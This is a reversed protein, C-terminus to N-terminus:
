SCKNTRKHKLTLTQSNFILLAKLRTSCDHCTHGTLIFFFSHFSFFLLECGPQKLVNSEINWSLRRKCRGCCLYFSKNSCQVTMISQPWLNLAKMELNNDTQGWIAKNYLSHNGVPRSVSISGNLQWNVEENYKAHFRVKM